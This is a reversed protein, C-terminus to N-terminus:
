PVVIPRRRVINGFRDVVTEIKITFDGLVKLKDISSLNMFQHLTVELQTYLDDLEEERAKMREIKKQMDSQMREIEREKQALEELLQQERELQRQIDILRDVFGKLDLMGYLRKEMREVRAPLTLIEEMPDQQLGSKTDPITDSLTSRTPVRTDDPKITVKEVPQPAREKAVDQAQAAARQKIVTYFRHRLTLYPVQFLNALREIEQKREGPRRELVKMLLGDEYETFVHRKRKKKPKEQTSVEPVIEIVETDLSERVSEM